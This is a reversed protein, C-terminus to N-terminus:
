CLLPLGAAESLTERVAETQAEAEAEREALTHVDAEGRCECDGERQGEDEVVAVREVERAGERLEDPVTDTERDDDPLAEAEAESECLAHLEVERVGERVGECQGVVLVLLVGEGTRLGVCDEVAVMVRLPERLALTEAEGVTDTDLLGQPLAERVGRRLPLGVGEVLAVCHADVM